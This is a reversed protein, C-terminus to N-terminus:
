PYRRLARKHNASLNTITWAHLCDFLGQGLVDCEIKVEADREFEEICDACLEVLRDSGEEYQRTLKHSVVRADCVPCRCVPLGTSGDLEGRVFRAQIQGSSTRKPTAKTM